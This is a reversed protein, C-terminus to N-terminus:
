LSLIIIYVLIVSEIEPDSKSTTFIYVNYYIHVTTSSYCSYM